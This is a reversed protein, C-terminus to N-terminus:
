AWQIKMFKPYSEEATEVLMILIDMVVAPNFNTENILYSHQATIEGEHELFKSFRYSGNLDNLLQYVADKKLPNTINAIDFIQLDVINQKENFSAVIVVSGGNNFSQRTRFFVGGSDEKIEEMHLNIEQLYNRFKVVNSM